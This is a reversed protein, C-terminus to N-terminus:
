AAGQGDDPVEVVEAGGIAARPEAGAAIGSDEDPGLGGDGLSLARHGPPGATM